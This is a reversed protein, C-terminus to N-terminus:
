SRPGNPSRAAPKAPEDRVQLALKPDNVLIGQVDWSMIKRIREPTIDGVGVIGKPWSGAMIFVPHEGSKALQMNQENIDSEWLRGINGGMQYFAPLDHPKLFGLLQVTPLLSKIHKAQALSRVGIIVGDQMNHRLIEQAVKVHFDPDDLKLDLLLPIKNKAFALADSFPLAAGSTKDHSCILAGDRAERIDTEIMNAGLTSAKEFGELSNDPYLSSYGRHAIIKVDQKM